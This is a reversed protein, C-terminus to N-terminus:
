LQRAATEAALIATIIRHIIQWIRTWNTTKKTEMNQLKTIRTNNWYEINDKYTNM